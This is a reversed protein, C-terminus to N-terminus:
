SVEYHVATNQYQDTNNIIFYWKGEHPIRVRSRHERQNIFGGFSSFTVGKEYNIFGEEDVLYTNVPFESEVYFTVSDRLRLNFSFYIYTKAPLTQTPVRKIRGEERTRKQTNSERTVQSTERISRNQKSPRYIVKDSLLVSSNCAVFSVELKREPITNNEGSQHGRSRFTSFNPLSNGRNYTCLHPFCFSNRAMQIYKQFYRRVDVM